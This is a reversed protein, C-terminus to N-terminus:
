LKSKLVPQKVTVADLFRKIEEKFNNTTSIGIHGLGEEEWVKLDINSKGGAKVDQVDFLYFLKTWGVM